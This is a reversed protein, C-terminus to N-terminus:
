QLVEEWPFGGMLAPMFGSLMTGLIIGLIGGVLGIFAANFLFILL